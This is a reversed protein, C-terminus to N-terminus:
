WIETYMHIKVLQITYENLSRNIYLEVTYKKSISKMMCHLEEM